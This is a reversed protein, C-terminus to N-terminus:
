LKRTQEHIIKNLKDEDRETGYERVTVSLEKGNEKISKDIQLHSPTNSGIEIGFGKIIWTVPSTTLAFFFAGLHILLLINPDVNNLAGMWNLTFITVMWIFTIFVFRPIRGSLYNVITVFIHYM